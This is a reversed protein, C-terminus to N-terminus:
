EETQEITLTGSRRAQIVEDKLRIAQRVEDAPAKQTKKVFVHSLVLLSGQEPDVFCLVRLRGKIFEWIHNVKDVEHFLDSPLAM